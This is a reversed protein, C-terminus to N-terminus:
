YKLSLLRNFFSRYRKLAFRLDETSVQDGSQWQGQLTRRKDSLTSIINETVHAILEDADKLCANPNDVFRSQIELWHIRLQEAEHSEFLPKPDGDRTSIHGEAPVKEVIPENRLPAEDTDTAANTSHLEKTEIM